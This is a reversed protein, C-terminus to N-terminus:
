VPKVAGGNGSTITVTTSVTGIADTENIKGLALGTQGDRGAGCVDTKGKQLSLRQLSEMYSQCIIDGHRRRAQYLLLYPKPENMKQSTNNRANARCQANNSNIAANRFNDESKGPHKLRQKRQGNGPFHKTLVTRPPLHWWGLLARCASIRFKLFSVLGGEKHTFNVSTLLIQVLCSVIFLVPWLMVMLWDYWCLDIDPRHGNPSTEPKWHITSLMRSILYLREVFYNVSVTVLAGGILSTDLIIMLRQWRLGAVALILGESFVVVVTIWVSAIPKFISWLLMSPVGILLGTLFGTMFLGVYHVLVTVMGFLLGAAM